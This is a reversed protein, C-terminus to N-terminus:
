SIAMERCEAACKRCAEACDRCHKMGKEGHKECEEACVSCIEECLGCLKQSYKSTLSMLASASRCIVACEMDLQICRTLNRVEQEELCATACHSCAVACSDCAAICDEFKEETM